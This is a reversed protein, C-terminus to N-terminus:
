LYDNSIMVKLSQHKEANIFTEYAKKTESLGFSHTQLLEPKLAGNRIQEMLMPITHTHVLGATMTFNRKWMDQLNITGPKGHVGLIAINGGPRVLNQSMDWGAPVGIAEIVVDVGVGDTEKLINEVAKNDVNCIADTAGLKLAEELRHPNNDIAFIRSPSYFKATMLAALGVPGCGVVALSDGPGLNGDQVGVELGTPFIDSLFVLADSDIDEPIHHMSTEAYPVRVFEAQCGDIENGLVWGGKTCQGWLQKRCMTCKGCSTICSVLVKDGPKFDEVQSGCDEVIGIGEHGLISGDKFTSVNNRLIHLDTGCITTKLIRVVADTNQIIKPRPRELLEYSDKGDFVLAKM